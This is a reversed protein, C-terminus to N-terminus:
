LNKIGRALEYTTEYAYDDEGGIYKLLIDQIAGISHWPKIENAIQSCEDWNFPSNDLLYNFVEDIMRRQDGM